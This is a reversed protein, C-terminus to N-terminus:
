DVPRPAREASLLPFPAPRMLAPIHVSLFLIWAVSWGLGAATLWIPTQGPLEALGRAIAAVFMLTLATWHRRRPLLETGESRRMTMRAAIALIMSGMTAMTLAHVQVLQPVM